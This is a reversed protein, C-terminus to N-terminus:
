CNSTAHAKGRKAGRTPSPQPPPPPPSASPASFGKSNSVQVIRAAARAAKGAEGSGREGYHLVYDLFQQITVKEETGVFDQTAEYLIGASHEKM